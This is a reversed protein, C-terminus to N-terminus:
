QYDTNKKTTYITYKLLINEPTIQEESNSLVFNDPIDPFFVDCCYDKCIETIYLKDVYNMFAKYVSSGGIIWVTDYKKTLLHSILMDCSDFVEAYKTKLTTSLVYNDRGSLPKRPISEWTKRGMVVANNGKGRTQKAFYKLDDQFHWPLEGKYGIGGNSCKAVIINM